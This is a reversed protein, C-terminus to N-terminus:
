PSGRPHGPFAHGRDDVDSWSARCESGTGRVAAIGYRDEYITRICRTSGLRLYLARNSSSAVYISYPDGPVSPPGTRAFVWDFWRRVDAASYFDLRADLGVRGATAPHWWLLRDSASEDALIRARPHSSAWRAAAALAGRALAAEGEPTSPGAATATTAVLALAALAVAGLRLFRPSLPPPAPRTRALTTAALGAAALAFWPQYRVAHSVLAGTVVSALLLGPDLSGRKRLGLWLVVVLVAAFGFTMWDFGYGLRPPTWESEYEALLPDSLVRHYYDLVSLGYPTAVLAAASAASCAAYLGARQGDRRFGAGAARLASYGSVLCAGLLAAGHLNAWLAILPAIWLSSVKLRNRRADEALWTLTIVFLVYSFMEARVSVYGVSGLFALLAWSAARQPAAGLRLCLRVFLGYASGVLGAALAALGLPGALRWTEYMVLQSLWQQDVWPKGHAVVSLTNTRPIGHAAILRGGVLDLYGDLTFPSQRVTLTFCLAGIALPWGWSASTIRRLGRTILRHGRQHAVPVETL